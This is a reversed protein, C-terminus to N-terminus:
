IRHEGRIASGSGRRVLRGRRRRWAWAYVALNIVIVTIGLATQVERTLGTPYLVPFIYRAIFDGSYPDLGAQLRLSNELPTLPCIRGSLEVYTAWVAAPLHVWAIRPWRLVLLGGLFAFAAFSLHVIVVAAALAASLTESSM